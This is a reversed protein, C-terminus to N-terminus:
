FPRIETCNILLSFQLTANKRCRNQRRDNATTVIVLFYFHLANQLFTLTTTTCHNYHNENK